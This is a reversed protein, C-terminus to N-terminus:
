HNSKKGPESLILRSRRRDFVGNDGAKERDDNDDRDVPDAGREIALKGRDIRGKFLLSSTQRKAEQPHAAKRTCKKQNKRGESKRSITLLM